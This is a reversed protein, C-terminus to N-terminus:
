SKWPPAPFRCTTACRHPTIKKTRHVRSLRPVIGWWPNACRVAICHGVCRMSVSTTSAMVLSAFIAPWPWCVVVRWPRSVVSARTVDRHHACSPRALVLVSPWSPPHSTLPRALARRVHGNLAAVTVCPLTFMRRMADEYQKIFVRTFREDNFNNVLDLGASFVRGAATLVVGKVAPTHRRVADLAANMDSLFVTNIQNAKSTAMTVVAVPSGGGSPAVFEVKWVMVATRRGSGVTRAHPPPNCAGARPAAIRIAFFIYSPNFCRLTTSRASAHVLLSVCTVAASHRRPTHSADTQGALRLGAHLNYPVVDSVANASSMPQRDRKYMAHNYWRTAPRTHCLGNNDHDQM